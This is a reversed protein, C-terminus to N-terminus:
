IANSQRNPFLKFFTAGLLKTIMGHRKKAELTPPEMNHARAESRIWRTRLVDKKIRSDIPELEPHDFMSTELNSRSKQFLGERETPNIVKRPM